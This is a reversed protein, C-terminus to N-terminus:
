EVLGADPHLLHVEYEYMQMSTIDHVTSHQATCARWERLALM